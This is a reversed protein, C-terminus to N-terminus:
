KLQKGTLASFFEGAIATGPQPASHDPHLDAWEPAVILPVWAPPQLKRVASGVKAPMKVREVSDATPQACHAAPSTVLYERCAVPRDAHISCSEDELFPCAIGRAFYELGFAQVQEDEISHPALLAELLGAEALRERAQGFRARLEAARPAPLEDLLERLRRAEVASIPVLQRCCAGCGKSCSISKGEGEAAKCAIGVVADALSHIIPLLKTPRTPASPVNLELRLRSGGISLEVNGTVTAGPDAAKRKV